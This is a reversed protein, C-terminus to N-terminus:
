VVYYDKARVDVTVSFNTATSTENPRSYNCESTCHSKNSGFLKKKRIESNDDTRLNKPPGWVVISSLVYTVDKHPMRKMLTPLCRQYPTSLLSAVTETIAVYYYNAIPTIKKLNSM